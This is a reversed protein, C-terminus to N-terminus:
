SSNNTGDQCNDNKWGKACHCKYSNLRDICTAGNQCPTERKCEDIETCGDKGSFKFTLLIAKNDAPNVIPKGHRTANIRMSVEWVVDSKVTLQAVVVTKGTTATGNGEVHWNRSKIGHETDWDRFALGDVRRFGDTSLGVTLWSDFRASASHKISNETVAGVNRGFPPDEQYAPPLILPHDEDGFIASIYPSAYNSETAVILRYTTFGQVSDTQIVQVDPRLGATAKAKSSM